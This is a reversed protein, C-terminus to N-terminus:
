LTDVVLPSFHPFHFFCSSMGLLMGLCSSHVKSRIRMAETFGVNGSYETHHEALLVRILM